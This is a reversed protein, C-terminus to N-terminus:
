KKEILAKLAAAAETFGRKGDHSSDALPNRGTGLTGLYAVANRDIVPLFRQWNSAAEASAREDASLTGDALAPAMLQRAQEFSMVPAPDNFPDEADPVAAAGGAQDVAELFRERVADDPMQAVAHLTHRGDYLDGARSNLIARLVVQEDDTVHADTKLLEVLKQGSGEVRPGGFWSQEILERTRTVVAKADPNLESAELTELAELAEQKNLSRRQAAHFDLTNTRITM